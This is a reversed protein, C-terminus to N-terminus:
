HGARMDSYCKSKPMPLNVDVALEGHNYDDIINLSRIACGDALADSM